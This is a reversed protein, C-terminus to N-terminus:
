LIVCSSLTDSTGTFTGSKEKVLQVKSLVTNKRAKEWEPLPKTWDEPPSSRYEWIDNAQANKIRIQRRDKENDLIKQLVDVSRTERFKFCNESDQKWKSCDLYNGFVYYQQFRGKTSTCEKYEDHYIECPRLMWIDVPLDTLKNENEKTKGDDKPAAMNLKGCAVLYRGISRWGKGLHKAIEQLYNKSLQKTSNLYVKLQEEPIKKKQTKEKNEGSHVHMVNNNGFQLNQCSIGQFKKNESLGMFYFDKQMTHTVDKNNNNNNNNNNYLQRGQYGVAQKDLHPQHSPPLADPILSSCSAGNEESSDPANKTTNTPYQSELKELQRAGNEESSDPANKTTNTPYQSETKELQRCHFDPEMRRQRIQHM